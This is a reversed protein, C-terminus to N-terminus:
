DDMKTRELKSIRLIPLRSPRATSFLVSSIAESRSNLSPVGESDTGDGLGSAPVTIATIRDNAAIVIRDHKMLVHSIKNWRTRSSIRTSIISIACRASATFVHDRRDSTM